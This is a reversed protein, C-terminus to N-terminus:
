EAPAPMLAVGARGRHARAARRKRWWILVGTVSLMAIGLGLAVALVRTPLGLIRGAHIPLQVREVIEGATGSTAPVSRIIHGDVSDLYIWTQGIGADEERGFRVGYMQAEPAFYLGSTPLGVGAARAEATARALAEDFSLRPAGAPHPPRGEYAEPAIPSFRTVVPEFVEHPLTLAVSSVGMLILLPWLWLGGARHLDFTRRTPSAGRKLRWSTAWGHWFRRGRPLTLYLGVFSDITWLIGVIGLFIAGARGPVFLSSHLYWVFPVFHQRELCCVGYRRTGQVEGSVPNVFMQDYLREAFAGSADPKWDVWVDAAYGPRPELPIWRAQVRPDAAEVADAIAQPRLSPGEQEISWLDPNLAADVEKQFVLLSGTLGAFVLFAAIALGVYRHLRVLAGRVGPGAARGAPRMAPRTDAM